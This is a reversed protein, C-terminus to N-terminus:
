LLEELLPDSDLGITENVCLTVHWAMMVFHVICFFLAWDGPEELRQIWTRRTITGTM